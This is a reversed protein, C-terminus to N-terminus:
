LGRKCPFIMKCYHQFNFVACMTGEERKNDLLPFMVSFALDFFSFCNSPRTERVMGVTAGFCKLIDRRQFGAEDCVEAEMKNCRIAVQFVM